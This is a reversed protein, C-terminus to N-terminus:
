KTRTVRIINTFQLKNQTFKKNQYKAITSAKTRISAVNYISIDFEIYENLKLSSITQDINIVGTELKIINNTERAQIM